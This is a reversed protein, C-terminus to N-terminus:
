CLLQINFILMSINHNTHKELLDINESSEFKIQHLNNCNFMCTHM